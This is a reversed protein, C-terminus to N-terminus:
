VSWTHVPDESHQRELYAAALRRMDTSHKAVWRRQWNAGNQKCKVRKSIIDLWYIASSRTIGLKILGTEALPLLEDIIVNLVNQSKGGKWLITSNMGFKACNYFNDSVEEFTIADKFEEVQSQFAEVCGWLFAANAIMDKVTPGAPMVRNEIRLHPQKENWGIIPRNWRWITGNHLRTHALNEQQQQYLVPILVEFKDINEEFCQLLSHDLYNTGFTVRKAYNDGLDIAQEFVPIRSEDWLDKGFLFPSNASMAVLPASLIQLCDFINAANQQTVQMHVQLSTTAAELMVDNHSCSLHERGDIDLTIQKNKRIDFIRENLVKYRENKSMNHTTLQGDQLAPQTGIIMTDWYKSQAMSSCKHWNELLNQYMADIGDNSLSQPQVNIEFNFLSLEPVIEKHQLSSLLEVNRAIPKGNANVIWAEVELGGIPHVSEFANREFWRRLIVAEEQLKALFQQEDSKTFHRYPIDQGM